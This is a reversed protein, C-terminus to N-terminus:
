QMSQSLIYNTTDKRVAGETSVSYDTEQDEFIVKKWM